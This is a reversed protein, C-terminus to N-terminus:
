HAIEAIGSWLENLDPFHWKDPDERSVIKEICHRDSLDVLIPSIRLGSKTSFFLRVKPSTLSQQGQEVVVGIKGSGMRVLSGVPSHPCAQADHTPCAGDGHASCAEDSISPIGKQIDLGRSSDIWVESIAADRIRELDKPDKLVFKTKWFPHEMWSGCFAHVYMGLILHEISIKKLMTTNKSPNSFLSCLAVFRLDFSM